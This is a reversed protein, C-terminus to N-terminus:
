NNKLFKMVSHFIVSQCDESIQMDITNIKICDKTIKSALGGNNGFIGFSYIKNKNAYKISKLINNSNGSGSMSILLDGPQSLSKLQEVFINEFSVDNGLCTILGNNDCLSIVRLGNLKKNRIPYSFDTAFHSANNASGGNGCVFIKKGKQHTKLILRSLEIIKKQDLGMIVLSLNEIYNNIIKTM